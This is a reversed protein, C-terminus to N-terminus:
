RGYQAKTEAVTCGMDERLGALRGRWNSEVMLNWVM